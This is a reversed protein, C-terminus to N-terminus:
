FKIFFLMFIDTQFLVRMKPKFIYFLMSNEIGFFGSNELFIEDHNDKSDWVCFFFIICIKIKAIKSSELVCNYFQVQSYFYLLM